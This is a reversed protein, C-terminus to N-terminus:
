GLHLGMVETSIGINSTDDQVVGTSIRPFGSIGQKPKNVHKCHKCHEANSDPKCTM